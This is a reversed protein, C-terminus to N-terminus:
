LLPRQKSNDHRKGERQPDPGTFADWLKRSLSEIIGSSVFPDRPLATGSIVALSRADRLVREVDNSRFGNAEAQRQWQTFLDKGTFVLKSEDGGIAGILPDKALPSFLNNPIEAPPTGIRGFSYLARPVFESLYAVHLRAKCQPITNAPFTMMSGDDRMHGHPVIVTTKLQPVQGPGTGSQFTAFVAGAPEDPSFGAVRRIVADLKEVTKNVSVSHHLELLSRSEADGLAWITNHLRDLNFELKWGILRDSPRWEGGPNTSGNPSCGRFLNDLVELEVPVKGGLRSAEVGQFIGPQGLQQAAFKPDFFERLVAEREAHAIPEVSVSM